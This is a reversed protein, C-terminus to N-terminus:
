SPGYTPQKTNRRCRVRIGRFKYKTTEVLRELLARAVGKSRHEKDVCLHTIYILLDRQNTGYLLYGLVNENEDVSVFIEEESARTFFAERPLFGLTSSNEDALRIVTDLYPSAKTVTVIHM